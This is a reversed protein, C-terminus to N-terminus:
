GLEPNVQAGLAEKQVCSSFSHTLFYLEFENLVKLTGREGRGREREGECKEERGRRRRNGDRKLKERHPLNWSKNLLSRLTIPTQPRPRTKNDQTADGELTSAEGNGRHSNKLTKRWRM